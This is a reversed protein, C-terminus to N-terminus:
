HWVEVAVHDRLRAMVHQSAEFSTASDHGAARTCFHTSRTKYKQCPPLHMRRRSVTMPDVDGPKVMPVPQHNRKDGM